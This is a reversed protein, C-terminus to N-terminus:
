RLNREFYVLRSASSAHAFGFREYRECVGPLPERLLLRDVGMAVGYNRAAEFMLPTVRGRLRIIRTRLVKWTISRSTGAGKPCGAWAFGACAIEVGCPRM